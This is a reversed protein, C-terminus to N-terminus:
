VKFGKEKLDKLFYEFNKKNKEDSTDYSSTENFRNRLKDMDIEEQRAEFLRLCDDRDVTTDRFIKSIILDYYNLIGLYLYEYEKLPINNGEKLPSELLETTFITKGSFLDFKFGEGKRAWGTGTVRDYGLDTLIKILYRYEKEDPILLDIDKTSEKIDLLTLATGGCAILHVKRKLHSDWITLINLLTKKDIRYQM